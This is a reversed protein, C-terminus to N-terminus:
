VVAELQVPDIEWALLAIFRDDAKVAIRALTHAIKNAKGIIIHLTSVAHQQYIFSRMTLALALVYAKSAFVSEVGQPPDLPQYFLGAFVAANQKM